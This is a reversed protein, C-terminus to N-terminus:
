AGSDLDRPWLRRFPSYGLSDLVAVDTVRRRALSANEPLLRALPSRANPHCSTLQEACPCDGWGSWDDDSFHAWGQYDAWTIMHHCRGCWGTKGAVTRTM